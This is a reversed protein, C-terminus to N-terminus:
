VSQTRGQSASLAKTAMTPAQHWNEAEKNAKWEVKARCHKSSLKLSWELLSPKVQAPTRFAWMKWLVLSKWKCSVQARNRPRLINVRSTWCALSLSRHLAPNQTGLASFLHRFDRGRVARGVLLVTFPTHRFPAQLMGCEGKQKQRQGRRRGVRVGHGFPLM